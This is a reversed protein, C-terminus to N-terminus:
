CDLSHVAPHQLLLQQSTSSAAARMQMRTNKSPRIRKNRQGQHRFHCFECRVGKGCLGRFWFICPSCNGPHNISGLSALEGEDNRPVMFMLEQDDLETEARSGQRPESQHVLPDDSSEQQHPWASMPQQLPPSQQLPPPPPIQPRQFTTSPAVMPSPLAQQLGSQVNEQVGPRPLFHGPPPPLKAYPVQMEVNNYNSRLPTSDHPGAALPAACGTPTPLLSSQMEGPIPPRFASPCSSMEVPLSFPLNIGPPPARSHLRRSDVLSDQWRTGSVEAVPAALPDIPQKELVESDPLLGASSKPEAVHMSSQKPVAVQTPSPAANAVPAPREKAVPLQRNAASTSELAGAPNEPVRRSEKQRSKASLSSRSSGGKMPMWFLLSNSGSSGQGSLLKSDSASRSLSANSERDDEEGAEAFESIFGHRVTVRM